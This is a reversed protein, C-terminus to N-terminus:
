EAGHDPWFNIGLQDLAADHWPRFEMWMAVGEDNNQVYHETRERQEPTLEDLTYTVGDISAYETYVNAGGCAAFRNDEVEYYEVWGYDGSVGGVILYDRYGTEPDTNDYIYPTDADILDTIDIPTEEKITLWLRGNEESIPNRSGGIQTYVEPGNPIMEYTQMGGAALHFVRAPVGAAVCLLGVAALAAAILAMRLPRPGKRRSQPQRGELRAYTEELKRNVLDPAEVNQRLIDQLRQEDM